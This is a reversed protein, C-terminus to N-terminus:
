LTGDEFTEPDENRVLQGSAELKKMLDAAAAIAQATAADTLRKRIASLEDPSLIEWPRPPSTAPRRVEV